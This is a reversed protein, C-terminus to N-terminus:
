ILFTNERHLYKSYIKNANKLCNKKLFKKKKSVPHTTIIQM